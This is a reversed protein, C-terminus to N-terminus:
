PHAAAPVSKEPLPDIPLDAGLLEQLHRIHTHNQMIPNYFAEKRSRGRGHPLTQYWKPQRESGFIWGSYNKSEFVFLGKASLMLMDIETTGNEGKPIYLNFLFRTGEKEYRRLNRYTTMYKGFRGLDRRM